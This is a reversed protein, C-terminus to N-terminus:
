HTTGRFSAYRQTDVIIIFTFILKFIGVGCVPGTLALEQKQPHAYYRIHSPIWYASTSVPVSKFPVLDKSCAGHPRHTGGGLGTPSGSPTPPLAIHRAPAPGRAFATPLAGNAQCCSPTLAHLAEQICKGGDRPSDSSLAVGTRDTCRDRTSGSHQFCPQELSLPATPILVVSPTLPKAHFSLICFTEIIPTNILHQFLM